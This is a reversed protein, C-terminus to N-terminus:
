AVNLNDDAFAKFESLDKENQLSQFTSFMGSNTTYHSGIGCTTHSFFNWNTKVYTTMDNMGGSNVSISQRILLSKYIVDDAIYFTLGKDFM